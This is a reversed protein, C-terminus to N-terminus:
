GERLAARAGRDFDSDDIAGDCMAELYAMREADPKQALEGRAWQYGREYASGPNFWSKLFGLM